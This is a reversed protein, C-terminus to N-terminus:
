SKKLCHSFYFCWCTLATTICTLVFMNHSVSVVYPYSLPYDLLFHPNKIFTMLIYLWEISSIILFLIGVKRPSKWLTSESQKQELEIEKQIQGRIENTDGLRKMTLAEAQEKDHCKQLEEQYINWVDERLKSRYYDEMMVPRIGKVVEEIFKDLHNPLNFNNM